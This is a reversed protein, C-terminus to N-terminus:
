NSMQMPSAAAPGPLPRAEAIPACGIKEAACCGRPAARCERVSRAVQDQEPQNGEASMRDASPAVGVLLAYGLGIMRMRPAAWLPRCGAFTQMRGRISANIQRLNTSVARAVETYFLPKFNSNRPFQFAL